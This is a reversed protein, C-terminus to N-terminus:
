KKGGGKKEFKLYKLHGEFMLDFTKPNNMIEKFEDLQSWQYKIYEKLLWGPWNKKQGYIGSIYSTMGAVQEPSYAGFKRAAYMMRRVKKKQSRNIHIDEDVITLGLIHPITKGFNDKTKEPKISFGFKAPVALLEQMVELTIEQACFNFDDAYVIWRINHKKCIKDIEVCMPKYVLNLIIPSVSSGQPLRRFSDYYYTTLWVLPAILAEEVKLKKLSKEIMDSIISPFADAIDFRFFHKEKRLRMVAKKAGRGKVFGFENPHPRSIKELWEKTAKFILQIKPHPALIDRKKGKKEIQFYHFGYKFICKYPKGNKGIIEDEFEPKKIIEIAERLEKKYVGITGALLGLTWKLQIDLVESDSLFRLDNEEDESM